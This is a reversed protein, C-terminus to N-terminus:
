KIINAQRLASQLVEDSLRSRSFDRLWIIEATIAKDPYIDQLLAVYLAIQVRYGSSVAEGQPEGSKFDVLWIGSDSILMRDIQGVVPRNGVLGSVGFESLAQQSFLPAFEPKAMFDIMHEALVLLREIGIPNDQPRQAILSQKALRRAIEPRTEPVIKGLNDLLEHMFIGELRAHESTGSQSAHSGFSDPMDAEDVASPVLPTLPTAEKAPPQFAWALRKTIDDGVGPDLADSRQPVEVEGEHLYRYIGAEDPAIGASEFGQKLLIDWSIGNISKRSKEFGALFLCESARTMAVYLLRQHEDTRAQSSAQKLEAIVDPMFQSDSPWYLADQSTILREAPEVGKVIDPVYVVPSELGKSGHITMIRVQNEMSNGFDRKVESQHIRQFVLFDSLSTSGQKEFEFALVIFANLSDSVGTGLRQYFAERGGKALVTEYFAAPSLRSALTFYQELTAIAQATKDGSGAKAKLAAILSQGKPRGSALAMLAEESLGILPSKLVAALQLDDDPLLCVDGLALLDMVEIQQDLRMRDPGAVPINHRLLAGRILDFIANRKNVLIMIDRPQYRRGALAPASGDLLQAIHGSITEALAADAGQAASAEDAFDPVDFYPLPAPKEPVDVIPWLEVLGPKQTFYADHLHYTGGLGQIDPQTMVHNVMDLVAKSSRFSTTLKLDVFPHGGTKAQEAFAAGKQLFVHPNAGQFSYISQKFDGVSFLTRQNGDDQEHAFFEDALSALLEWQAPNTDQAEDVLMHHIGFDLKWRVWAMVDSARLLKDAKIILDDYDLVAQRM